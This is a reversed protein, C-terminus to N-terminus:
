GVTPDTGEDGRNKANAYGGATKPSKKRGLATMGTQIKSQHHARDSQNGTSQKTQFFIGKCGEQGPKRDTEDSAPEDVFGKELFPEGVGFRTLQNDNHNGQQRCTSQNPSAQGDSLGESLLKTPKTPFHTPNTRGAIEVLPTHCWM